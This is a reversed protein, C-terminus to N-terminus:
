EDGSEYHDGVASPLRTKGVFVLVLIVTVYPIIQILDSPIAYGIAQLRIQIADLGGFLLAGALAGIPNYNAFLYTAIAIFGRGSIDTDGTGTFGGLQGLAFGAGGLGAFVGSLLVAAYRIRRVSVGATDLAQPNEGSARVWSGFATQTLLYWGVVAGGIMILIEPSTDFLLYGLVPIDQLMPITVDSFRSVSDTNSSGFVITSVFPALGLAILWVALGAIIQDAKFDICVAAFVLALLVSAFVGGILGWWRHDLGLTAGPNGFSYTVLVAFFASIILLGEIGINIVGSKEAFIGGVAALAIPVAMRLTAEHTSSRLVIDVLDGVWTDPYVAGIAVFSVIALYGVTVIARRETWAAATYIFGATTVALLGLIGRFEPFLQGLMIGAILIGWMGAILHQLDRRLWSAAAAIGTTIIALVAWGASDPFAVSGIFALAVVAVYLLEVPSQAIRDRMTM